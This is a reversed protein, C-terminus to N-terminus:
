ENLNEWEARLEQLLNEALDGAGSSYPPFRDTVYRSERLIMEVRLAATPFANVRNAYDDPDTVESIHLQTARVEGNPVTGVKHARKGPRSPKIEHDAEKFEVGILQDVHEPNPVMAPGHPDAPTWQGYLCNRYVFRAMIM